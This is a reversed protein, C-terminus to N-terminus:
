TVAEANTEFQDYYPMSIKIEVGFKFVSSQIEGIVGSPMVILTIRYFTLM